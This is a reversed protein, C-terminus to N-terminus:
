AARHEGLEPRLEVAHAFVRAAEAERGTELLTAAFQVLVEPDAETGSVLRLFVDLSDEARGTERLAIALLLSAGADGPDAAVAGTALVLAEASRGQRLQASGVLVKLSAPAGEVDLRALEADRGEAALAEALRLSCQWANERADALDPALRLADEFAQLAEGYRGCRYRANGLNYRATAHRPDLHAARAYSTAAEEFRELRYLCKGLDLRVSAEDLVEESAPRDRRSLLRELAHASAEFRGEAFDVGAQLYQVLPSGPRLSAAERLHSRAGPFNGTAVAAQALKVHAMSLAEPPLPGRRIARELAETSEDMEGLAFLTVGLHFLMFGDDPHDELEKRLMRLNRLEKARLVEPSLGYGSHLIRLSSPRVRARARILSPLVQEHVRGEFCVGPLKRFLRCYRHSIGSLVEGARMQNVIEVEAADWDGQLLLGKLASASAPDLVEDADLVLIWEGRAETLARNRAQSFDDGWAESVVRAGLLRALEPSGDKSGTDVIVVEDAVARVSEIARRLSGVGDRVIMAVSLGPWSGRSRSTHQHTQELQQGLAALDPNEPFHQRGRALASRASALDGRVMELRVLAAYAPEFFPNLELTRAQHLRAAARDGAAELLMGLEHHVEPCLPNLGLANELQARALSPFGRARECLALQLRVHVPEARFDISGLTEDPPM